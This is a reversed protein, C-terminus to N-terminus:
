VVPPLRAAPPPPPPPASDPLAGTTTTATTTTCAILTPAATATSKCSHKCSQRVILPKVATATEDGYPGRCQPRCKPSRIVSASLFADEDDDKMKTKMMMKEMVM